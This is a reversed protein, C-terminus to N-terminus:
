AHLPQNEVSALDAKWRAVKRSHYCCSLTTKVSQNFAGRSGSLGLLNVKM